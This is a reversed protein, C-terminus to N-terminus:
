YLEIENFCSALIEPGWISGVKWVHYNAYSTGPNTAAARLCEEEDIGPAEWQSRGPDVGSYAQSYEKWPGAHLNLCLMTKSVDKLSPCGNYSLSCVKIGDMEKRLAVTESESLRSLEPVEIYFNKRFPLYNISNHDM